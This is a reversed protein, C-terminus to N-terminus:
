ESEQKPAAALMAKWVKAADEGGISYYEDDAIGAYVDVGVHKIDCMEATPEIPVLAWGDPVAPSNLQESNGFAQGGEDIAIDAANSITSGHLAARLAKHIATMANDSGTTPTCFLSYIEKLKALTPMQLPQAVPEPPAAYVPAYDSNWGVPENFGDLYLPERLDRNDNQLARWGTIEQKDRERRELLDVLACMVDEGLEFMGSKNQDAAKLQEIIKSLTM